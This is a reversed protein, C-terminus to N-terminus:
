VPEPAVGPVVGADVGADRLVDADAALSDHGTLRVVGRGDAVRRAVLDTLEADLRGATEVIEVDDDLEDALRPALPAAVVLVDAAHVTRRGRVTLLDEDGAGVVLAAWGSPRPRRARLGRPETALSRAVQRGVDVSRRPDDSDVAIRVSGAPTVVGARAPVRANGLSVDGATICWLRRSECVEALRADVDPNGTAAHVVWPTDLDSDRVERQEFEVRSGSAAIVARMREGLEPAVVRVRAGAERFMEARRASVPGAGVLLVERGSLSLTLPLGDPAPSESDPVPGGPTPGDLAPRDSTPVGTGALAASM